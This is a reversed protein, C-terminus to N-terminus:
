RKTRSKVQKIKAEIDDTRDIGLKARRILKRQVVNGLPKDPLKTWRKPRKRAVQLEVTETVDPENPGTAPAIGQHLARRNARIVHRKNRRINKRSSKSNEGYTNRRDKLYSQRKKEQPTKRRM